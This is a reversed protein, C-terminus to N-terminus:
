YEKLEDSIDIATLYEFHPWQEVKFLQRYRKLVLFYLESLPLWNFMQCSLSFLVARIFTNQFFASNRKLPANHTIYFFKSKIVMENRMLIVNWFAITMKLNRRKLRFCVFLPPLSLFRCPKRRPSLPLCSCASAARQPRSFPHNIAKAHSEFIQFGNIHDIKYQEREEGNKTAKDLLLVNLRSAQYYSITAM